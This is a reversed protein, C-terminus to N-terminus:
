LAIVRILVDNLASCRRWPYQDIPSLVAESPMPPFPPAIELCDCPIKFPVTASALHSEAESSLRLLLVLNNCTATESPAPTLECALTAAAFTSIPPAALRDRGNASTVPQPRAPKKAPAGDIALIQPEANQPQHAANRALLPRHRISLM